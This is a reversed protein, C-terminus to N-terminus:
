NSKFTVFVYEISELLQDKPTTAVTMAQKQEKECALIYREEIKQYKENLRELEKTKQFM